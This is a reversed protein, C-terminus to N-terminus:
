SNEEIKNKVLRQSLFADDKRRENNTKGKQALLVSILKM